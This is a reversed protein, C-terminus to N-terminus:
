ILLTISLSVVVLKLLEVLILFLGATTM